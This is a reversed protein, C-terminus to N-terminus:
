GQIFLYPKFNHLPACIDGSRGEWGILHKMGSERIIRHSFNQYLVSFEGTHMSEQDVEALSPNIRDRKAWYSIIVNLM